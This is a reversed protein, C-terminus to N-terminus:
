SMRFEMVTRELFDALSLGKPVVVGYTDHYRPFGDFGKVGLFRVM